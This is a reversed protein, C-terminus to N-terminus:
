RIPDFSGIRYIRAIEDIKAFDPAELYLTMRAPNITKKLNQVSIQRFVRFRRKVSKQAKKAM